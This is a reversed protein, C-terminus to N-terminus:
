ARGRLQSKPHAPKAKVDIGADPGPVHGTRPQGLPDSKPRGESFKQKRATPVTGKGEPPLGGWTDTQIGPIQKKM